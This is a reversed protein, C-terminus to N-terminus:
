RWLPFGSAAAVREELRDDIESAFGPCSRAYVAAVFVVLFVVIFAAVFVVVLVAVFVVVLVVVFVLVFVFM